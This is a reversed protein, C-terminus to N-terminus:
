CRVNQALPWNTVVAVKEPDTAVQDKSVVHGLFKVRRWFLECKNPNLKLNAARLQSLIHTLRQLELEFTKAHAIMNDLSVLCRLDGLINDMLQEFTAPASCLRFAMVNFQWLGDGATFATKERDQEEVEM